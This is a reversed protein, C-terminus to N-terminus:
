SCWQRKELDCREFLEAVPAFAPEIVEIAM